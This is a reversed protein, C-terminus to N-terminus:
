GVSSVRTGGSGQSFKRYLNLAAGLPRERRRSPVACDHEREAGAGGAEPARDARAFALFRPRQFGPFDRFRPPNSVTAAM